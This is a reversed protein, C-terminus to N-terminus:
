RRRKIHQSRPMEALPLVQEGPRVWVIPGDDSETRDKLQLGSLEGWPLVAKLFPNAELMDLMDPFYGGVEEHVVGVVSFQDLGGCQFTNNHYTDEVRKAFDEVTAAEIALKNGLSQMKIVMRPYQSKFYSVIEPMYSVANHVIGMVYRAHGEEDESFVADFFEQVLTATQSPPLDAIDDQYIHLVCANGNPHKEVHIHSSMDMESDDSLSRIEHYHHSFATGIPSLRSSNVFSQNIHERSLKPRSVVGVRRKRKRSLAPDLLSVSTWM